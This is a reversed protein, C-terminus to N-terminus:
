DISAKSALLKQFVGLVAMLHGGSVIEASGRVIYARLLVVLAPVNGKREWLVPSLLPPFLAKYAESLGGQLAPRYYLLQGLVQFVYPVLESVDQTLVSQFPPFLLAELRATSAAPDLAPSTSACCSRVLVALCEFLYHNFHPNAPNKCVRELTTTFHLLLPELVPSVDSEVLALVRMICKMVYDNEPIDPNDMVRVLGILLDNLHPLVANRQIRPVTKKGSADKDKVALFKDICTAAYTAVVVQSSSLLRILHPLLDLMFAADLHARFVCVLKTANAKVIPSSNVDPDRVEPLVHNAFIEQINVYPNLEAAGMASSASLVAVALVLNLATDKAKWSQAKALTSQVSYETLMSGIYALCIQSTQEKFFKLLGRILDCACRRRTDQDGGEMDKQIYDSPNNDFLEEDAESSALNPVVIQHIIQRLVDETFLSANRQKSSVSTLFKIGNAALIDHKPYPETKLLLQWIIQTFTGLHSSFEEEYKSVYLVLCELIASQLQDLASPEERDRPNSALPNSYTLYKAFETMWIGMNDEFCEPLDQWNLSFFIRTMLRLNEFLLTLKEKDAAYQPVLSGCYIYTKTLPEQFLRLCYAIETFLEDSRFVYRYRKLISNATLMVGKIISIDNSSLKDVLQSLLSDWKAPFDHKSIIAVSEALQKQVDPPTTCMLNVLHIKLVDRDKEAILPTDTGDDSPVWRKKVINKFLITASQRIAVDEPLISNSLASVLHLILITFGEAAEYSALIREAAFFNIPLTTFIICLRFCM